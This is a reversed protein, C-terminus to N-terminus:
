NKSKREDLITEVRTMRTRLDELAELMRQAPDAPTARKRNEWWLYLAFAVPLGYAKITESLLEPPMM